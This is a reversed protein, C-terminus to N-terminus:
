PWNGAVARNDWSIGTKYRVRVILGNTKYFRVVRWTTASTATGDTNVGHYDDTTTEDRRIEEGVLPEFKLIRQFALEDDLAQLKSEVAVDYTRVRFSADVDAFRGAVSRDEIRVSETPAFSAGTVVLAGNVVQAVDGDQDTISGM